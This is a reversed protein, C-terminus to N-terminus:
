SFFLVKWYILLPFLEVVCLYSYFDLKRFEALKNIIVGVGIMRGLYLISLTTKFFSYWDMLHYPMQLALFIALICLPLYFFHSIRIYEYFHFNIIRSLGLLSATLSILLFKAFIALSIIVFSLGFNSLGSAQISSNLHKGLFFTNEKEQNTQAMFYFLVAVLCAYNLLFLINTGSFPRLYLPNDMRRLINFFKSVQLYSMLLRFDIQRIFAYGLCLLVLLIIANRRITQLYNKDAQKEPIKQSSYKLKGVLIQKCFSGKRAYLSFFIKQYGYKQTLSDLSLRNWGISLKKQLNHNIYLYTEEQLELLLDYPQYDSPKLWFHLMLSNQHLAPSYAVYQNYNDNFHLLENELSVIKKEVSQALLPNFFLLGSWVIYILVQVVKLSKLANLPYAKEFFIQM